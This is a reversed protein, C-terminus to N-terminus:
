TYFKIKYRYSHEYKNSSSYKSDFLKNVYNILAPIVCLNFTIGWVTFKAGGIRTLEYQNGIIPLM